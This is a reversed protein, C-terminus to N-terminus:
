NVLRNSPKILINQCLRGKLFMWLRSIAKFLVGWVRVQQVIQRINNVYLTVYDNVYTPKLSAPINFWNTALAAENENNGSWIIISPHSKLRQVQFVLFLSCWWGVAHINRQDAKCKLTCVNRNVSPFCVSLPDHRRTGEGAPGGRREGDSRLRGRHSVHCLRVHLGALGLCVHNLAELARRNLPNM